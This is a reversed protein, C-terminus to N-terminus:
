ACSQKGTHLRQSCEEVYHSFMAAPGLLAPGHLPRLSHTGRLVMAEGAPVSTVPAAAAAHVWGAAEVQARQQGQSYALLRAAQPHKWGRGASILMDSGGECGRCGRRWEVGGWDINDGSAQQGCAHAGCACRHGGEQLVYFSDAPDGEEFLNHGAVLRVPVAVTALQAHLQMEPPPLSHWKLPSNYRLHFRCFLLVRM